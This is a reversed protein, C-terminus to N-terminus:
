LIRYDLGVSDLSACVRGAEDEEIEFIFSNNREAEEEIDVDFDESYAKQWDLIQQRNYYPITNKRQITVEEPKIIFREKIGYKRIQEQTASTAPIKKDELQVYKEEEYNYKLYSGELNRMTKYFNDYWLLTQKFPEEEIRTEHPKFIELTIM